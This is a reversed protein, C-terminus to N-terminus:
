PTLRNPVNSTSLFSTETELSYKITKMIMLRIRKAVHYSAPSEMFEGRPNLIVGSSRFPLFSFPSINEADSADRIEGILVLSRGNM